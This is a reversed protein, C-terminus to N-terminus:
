FNEKVRESVRESLSKRRKESVATKEVNKKAIREAISNGFALLDGWAAITYVVSGALYMYSGAMVTIPFQLMCSGVTFLLSGFNNMFAPPICKHLCFRHEQCCKYPRGARHFNPVLPELPGWFSSCLVNTLAAQMWFFASGLFWFFNTGLVWNPTGITSTGCGITFTVGGLIQCWATVKEMNTLIHKAEDLEQAGPNKAPERNAHLKQKKHARAIDALWWTGTVAYCICAYAFVWTGLMATKPILFLTSGIVFFTANHLNFAGRTFVVIESKTWRKSGTKKRRALKATQSASRSATSESRFSKEQAPLDSILAKVGPQSM